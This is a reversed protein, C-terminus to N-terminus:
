ATLNGVFYPEFSAYQSRYVWIQESLLALASTVAIRVSVPTADWDAKPVKIGAILEIEESM